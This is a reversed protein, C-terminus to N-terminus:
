LSNLYLQKLKFGKKKTLKEIATHFGSGYQAAKKPRFAFEKELGLHIATELLILKKHHENIKLEPSILMSYRVLEKDLFPCQMNIQFHNIVALDRLLDNEYVKKFGVLM